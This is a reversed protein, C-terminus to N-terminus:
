QKHELIMWKRVVHDLLCLGLIAMYIECMKRSFAWINELSKRM